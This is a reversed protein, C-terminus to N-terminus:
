FANDIIKRNIVKEALWIPALPISSSLKPVITMHHNYDQEVLGTRGVLRISAISTDIEFNKTFASGREIEFRGHMRKYRLGTEFLDRFDLTLRKPLSALQLLGFLRGAAGRDVNTLRGDRVDLDMSGTARNLDIQWPAGPWRATLSLKLDGGETEEGVAYGLGRLARGVDPSLVHLNGRTAREAGDSWEGSARLEFLPSTLTLRDISLGSANPTTQLQVEGLLHEDLSLAGIRVDMAPLRRPDPTSDTPDSSGGSQESRQLRLTEFRAQLTPRQGTNSLTVTGRAGNASLEASLPGGAAQRVSLRARPMSSGLVTMHEAEIDAQLALVSTGSRGGSPTGANAQGLWGDLDLRAPNGAIRISGPTPESRADASLWLSLGRLDAAEAGNGMLAIAGIQEGLSFDVTRTARPEFRTSLLLTEARDAPKALPEPLSIALGRTSSRLTLGLSGAHESNVHPLELTLQADTRGRLRKLVPALGAMGSESMGVNRLQASFTEDAISGRIVLTTTARRQPGLSVTIPSGLYAGELALADIGDRNFHLEGRVERPGQELGNIRASNRDLLLRGDVTTRRGGLPIDLSLEVRAPGSFSTNRLLPAFYRSFPANAVFDLVQRTDGDTSGAVHVVPHELTVDPINLTTRELRAGSVSGNETYGDLETGAFTLVMDLDEIPPWNRQYHLLANEVRATVQPRPRGNEDFSLAFDLEASGQSLARASWDQLAPNVELGGIVEAISPLQLRAYGNLKRLRRNAGLGPELSLEGSVVVHEEGRQLRVADLALVQEEGAQRRSLRGGTLMLSIPGNSGPLVLAGAALQASLTAHEYALRAAVKQLSFGHEGTTLSLESIGADASELQLGRPGHSLVLTPSDLSGTLDLGPHRPASEGPKSITAAELLRRVSELQVSGLQLLARDGNRPDPVVKLDLNLEADDGSGAAVRLPTIGVSWDAGDDHLLGDAEIHEFRLATPTTTAADPGQVRSTWTSQGARLLLRTAASATAPDADAALLESHLDLQLAPIRLDGGLREALASPLSRIDARLRLRGDGQWRLTASYHEGQKLRIRLGDRDHDLALDLGDLTLPETGADGIIAFRADNLRVLISRQTTLLASQTALARLWIRPDLGTRETREASPGLTLNFRPADVEVSRVRVSQSELSGLLDLRMIVRELELARAGIQAQIRVQHGVMVPEGDYWSLRLAGIRVPRG